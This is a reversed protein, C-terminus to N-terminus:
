ILNQRIMDMATMCTRLRVMDRDGPLQLKRAQVGHVDAIAIYVLGVPKEDTGGGPGAIGTVGIGIDAMCARRVGSAMERAAEESVAGHALLTEEKVGLRKVKVANSYAVVGELLFKSCDPVSVLMSALMGGTCSEAIALTKQRDILLKACVAPLPEDDTAYVVNGLRSQIAEVVPLVLAEGEKADKCRATVRLTVEGSKAYPAITPNTQNSFLDELEYAVRSEGMGIIRVVRTYLFSDSKKRLYPVVANDFMAKMEHPPGPLLIMAKEGSEIICGPATGQGNRLIVADEPFMVQRINNATMNWGRSAFYAKMADLSEQHCLLQRDVLQAAIEKTIDDDTPGLGGTTIVIDARSLALRLTQTLRFPNDGVTTHYYVFLGLSALQESLYQTNTNTIQGLLIETGVSVIEVIM